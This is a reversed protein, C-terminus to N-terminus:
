REHRSSCVRWDSASQFMENCTVTKRHPITVGV